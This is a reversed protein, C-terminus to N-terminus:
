FSNMLREDKKISSSKEGPIPSDLRIVKIQLGRSAARQTLEREDYNQDYGIAVIDPKVEWLSGLADSTSGLVAADVYKISSVLSARENENHISSSGRLALVTADRAVSVVLVDGLAKAKMLTYVHGSHIIDFVGGTLVVQLKGRGSPSLEIAGSKSMSVLGISSLRGMLKAITTPELNLLPSLSDPTCVGELSQSFVSSLIKKVLLADKALTDASSLTGDGESTVLDSM